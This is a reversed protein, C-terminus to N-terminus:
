KPASARAAAAKKQEFTQFGAHTALALRSHLDNREALLERFTAEVTAAHARVEDVLAKREEAPMAAAHTHLEEHTCALWWPSATTTPMHGEKEAPTITM